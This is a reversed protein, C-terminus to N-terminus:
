PVPDSSRPALCFALLASCSAPPAPSSQAPPTHSASTNHPPPTSVHPPPSSVDPLYSESGEWKRTGLKAIFSTSIHFFFDSSMLLPHTLVLPPYTVVLRACLRERLYNSHRRLRPPPLYRKNRRSIPRPCPQARIPTPTPLRITSSILSPM